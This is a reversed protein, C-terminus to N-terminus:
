NSYQSQSGVILHIHTHTHTHRHSHSHTHTHTQTDTHRHKNASSKTSTKTTHTHTNHKDKNHHKHKHKQTQKQSQTHTQTQAQTRAPTHAQTQTQQTTTHFHKSTLVIYYAVAPRQHSILVWSSISGRHSSPGDWKFCFRLCHSAVLDLQKPRVPGPLRTQAIVLAAQLCVVYLSLTQGFQAIGM